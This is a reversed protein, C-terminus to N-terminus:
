ETRLNRAPNATAARVAQYSVTLLTILVALISVAIFVSINISIKYDYQKLWENMCYWAIPIAIACSILVLLVFDKSLLQWLSPVSAGL